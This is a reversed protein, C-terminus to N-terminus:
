EAPFYEEPHLNVILEEPYSLERALSEAEKAQGIGQRGHTDSSLLIPIRRALCLSLLARYNERTSVGPVQHYGGPTLSANNVEVITGYKAAADAIREYDVPFQTNDCHGLIRVYPNQMARIYDATNEEVTGTTGPRNEKAYAGSPNQPNASPVVARPFIQHYESGFKYSGRPPRHMSAICFDLGKLVDDPIDLLGGELINAEAGYLLRIGFRTRPSNTLSRFYSLSAAGITAPGHDSIGLTSLGRSAAERAMDAVTDTTGHGSAITHTHIDFPLM